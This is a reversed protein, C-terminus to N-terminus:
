KLVDKLWENLKNEIVRQSQGNLEDVAGTLIFQGEVWGQHNRTRHGYEVYSAYEVPNKVEITYTNGSRKIQIQDVYDTVSVKVGSEAEEHTDVTWGRRLTGGLKGSTNVRKTYVDGKKHKKSDRKATVRIERTYDGVPTNKVVKRLLRATLEKSCARCFDDVNIKDVNDRFKKLQSIDISM